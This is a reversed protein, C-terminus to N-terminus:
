LSRVYEERERFCRVTDAVLSDMIEEDCPSNSLVYPDPCPGLPEPTLFRGPENMGVLYAAMIITDVDMMGRGLADRNTDALHLNVLRNGCSLVAEGIHSEELFMHYIDGNIHAIGPHNVAAIYRFADAVSRILSVEASRIPEVAAKIGTTVFVDGCLRLSATSREFESSDLSAPRGVASPVVILYIGKLEALFETEIMIYDIARQRFYPNSSSLDNESSFMGCTGSVKLATRELANRIRAVSLGSNQTHHDGKLEVFHIGNRVLREFSRELPELGFMWISWSLDIKRSFREPYRSKEVLFRQRIAENKRQFEQHKM